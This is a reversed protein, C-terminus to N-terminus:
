VMVGVMEAAEAIIHETADLGGLDSSVLIRVAFDRAEVMPVAEIHREAEMMKAWAADAEACDVDFSNFTARHRLWYHYLRMMQSPQPMPCSDGVVPAAGVFGALVGGLARRTFQTGM